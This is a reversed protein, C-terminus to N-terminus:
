VVEFFEVIEEGVNLFEGDKEDNYCTDSVDVLEEHGNYSIGHDAYQVAKLDNLGDGVYTTKVGDGRSYMDVYMKMMKKKGDRDLPIINQGLMEGNDDWIIECAAVFHNINLEEKIMQASEKFGGTLIVTNIDHDDLMEFTEVVGNNYESEGIVSEFIDRNLGRDSYMSLTEDVWEPYTEIENNYWRENIREKKRLTDEGISNALESWSTNGQNKQHNYNGLLTGDMDFFAIKETM